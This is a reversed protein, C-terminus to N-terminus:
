WSPWRGSRDWGDRDPPELDPVTGFAAESAANVASADGVSIYADIAERVVQALSKGEQAAREDLVRRQERTLYVQTRTAPMCRLM